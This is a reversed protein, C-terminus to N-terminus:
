NARACPFAMPDASKRKCRDARTCTIIVTGSAMRQIAVFHLADIRDMMIAQPNWGSVDTAIYIQATM